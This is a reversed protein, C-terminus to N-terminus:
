VNVQFPRSGAILVQQALYQALDIDYSLQDAEKSFPLMPETEADQADSKTHVIMCRIDYLREAVDARLDVSPNALPIKHCQLVKTKASYFEQRDAGSELFQRLSTPDVCELLTARLQSREDGFGGGRSIQIASLLRGIDADRDGRFTPDKLITKLKRQAETQSYIPFYFELVQYYALFQLLPM